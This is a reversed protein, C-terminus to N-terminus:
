TFFARRHRLQAAGPAGSHVPARRHGIEPSAPTGSPTAPAPTPTPSFENAVSTISGPGGPKRTAQLVVNGAEDGERLQVVSLRKLVMHYWWCGGAGAGDTQFACLTTFAVAEPSGDTGFRGQVVVAYRGNPRLGTFHFRATWRSSDADGGHYTVVGDGLAPSTGAPVAFVMTNTSEHVASAQYVFAFVSAVALVAVILLAVMRNYRSTPAKLM